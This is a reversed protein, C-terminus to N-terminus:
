PKCSAGCPTSSTILRWVTPPHSQRRHLVAPRLFLPRSSKTQPSSFRPTPQKSHMSWPGLYGTPQASWGGLTRCTWAGPLEDVICQFHGMMAPRRLHPCLPIGKRQSFKDPAGVPYGRACALKLTNRGTEDTIELSAGCDLLLRLCKLKNMEACLHLPTKGTQWFAVRLTFTLALPTWLDVGFPATSTHFRTGAEWAM